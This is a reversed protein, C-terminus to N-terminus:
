SSRVAIASYQASMWRRGPADPPAPPPRQCHQGPSRSVSPVSSQPWSSPTKGAGSFAPEALCSHCRRASPSRVPTGPRSAHRRTGEMGDTLARLGPMYVGALAIGTIARWGLAPLLGDSLAVGLSSLASLASSALFITRAPMRDTLSVLPLVGLMYGASVMGALWGGQANTLSWAEIFQPLLAPVISYGALGLIEAVCVAAIASTAPSSGRKRSSSSVPRPMVRAEILCPQRRRVPVARPCRFSGSTSRTSVAAAAGADAGDVAPRRVHVACLVRGLGGARGARGIRRRHHAGRDGGAVVAARLAHRHVARSCLGSLYTIFAADAMGQAFAETTVTAYLVHREGASCALLLYMAMAIRRRGAPACCRGGPASARSWGAAWRSAPWRAAAALVLRDAAIAERSFGLARYFPATM